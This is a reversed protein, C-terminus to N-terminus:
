QGCSIRGSEEAIRRESEALLEGVKEDMKPDGMEKLFADLFRGYKRLVGVDGNAVAMGIESRMRPSLMEVRGVFVRSLQGPTPQIAIPLLADLKTRPLIYFVRLGEEFWSDRWTELMAKAEDRYLGMETLEGEFRARLEELSGALEAFRVSVPQRLSHIVKYGVRGAHNEFVIVTPITEVAANSLRVGDGVIAPRLDVGFYAIGRYFLLKEKEGESTLPWAQTARAAYYHSAAQLKPLAEGSQRLEVHEWAIGGCQSTAPRVSSARPYWETIRGNPFEVKVSVAMPKAPYFYLVPTEMRVTGFDTLKLNKQDLHHVFCPLDSPAYLPRWEMAAGDAGAVSTFTGWEHVSQAGCAATLLAATWVMKRASM